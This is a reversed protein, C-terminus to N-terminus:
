IDEPRAQSELEAEPTNLSKDPVAFNQLMQRIQEPTPATNYNELLQDYKWDRAALLRLRTQAQGRDSVGYVWLRKEIVDIMAFGYTERSLQLPVVVINDAKALAPKKVDAQVTTLMRGAVFALCLCAGCGVLWWLRKRDMITLGM